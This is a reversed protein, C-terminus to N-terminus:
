VGTESHGEVYAKKKGNGKCVIGQSAGGKGLGKENRVTSSVPVIGEMTEKGIGKEKVFVGGM